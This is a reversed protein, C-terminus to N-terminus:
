VAIVWACAFYVGMGVLLCKWPLLSPYLLGRMDSALPLRGFFIGVWVNGFYLGSCSGGCLDLGAIFVVIIAGIFVCGAFFIAFPMEPVWFAAFCGELLYGLCACVSM